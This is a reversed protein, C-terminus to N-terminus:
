KPNPVMLITWRMQRKYPCPYERPGWFNPNKCSPVSMLAIRDGAFVTVENLLDSCTEESGQITCQLSTDGTPENPDTTSDGNVMLVFTWASDGPGAYDHLSVNLQSITGGVPLVQDVDDISADSHGYFPGHYRYMENKSIQEPGSSGGLIMAKGPPAAPPGAFATAALLVGCIVAIVSKMM